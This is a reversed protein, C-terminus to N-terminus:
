RRDFQPCSLLAKLESAFIVRGKRYHVFLPKKGLRDRCLHLRRTRADWVAFAFMGVFRRVAAEVGWCEFAALMVETDSHGRFHAGSGSLERALDRSNFVEGNFVITFRGTSSSMPQHGAPTLDVIALRRFGLAIGAAADIWLGADDPGRHRLRDAMAGVQTRLTDVTEGGASMIGALGCM